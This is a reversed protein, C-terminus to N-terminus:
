SSFHETDYAIARVDEHRVPLWTGGYAPSHAVPCRARLDDWIEHVHANYAPDAHDFDTAWDRTGTM